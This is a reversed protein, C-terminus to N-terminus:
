KLNPLSQVPDNQRAESAIEQLLTKRTERDIGQALMMTNRVELKALLDLEKRSLQTRDISVFEGCFAWNVLRAENVYHHAETDKGDHKRTMELMSCMVNFSVAAQHKTNKWNVQEPAGRLILDIQEDCWIAFNVDLWRAFVVALKPHMWTGGGIEKPGSKTKVFGTQKVLRLLKAQKAADSCRLNNIENFQESFVSNSKRDALASIYEVSDATHLWDVPRKGFKEAAATANFWGESNFQMTQGDFDAQILKSM